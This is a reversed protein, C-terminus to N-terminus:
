ALIARQERQRRVLDYTEAVEAGLLFVCATYYLWLVGLLVAIANANSLLRDFTAVETLYLAFLQKAMEFGLSAVAAALVATDWRVPRSPLVVYVIYFLLLGIGFTSLEALFRGFWPSRAWLVTLVANASVFALAVIVLALDLLKGVLFPRTEETDFVENLAARAGSFLRTAFWLFLPAGWFSFQARSEVVSEILTELRRVSAAGGGTPLMRDLLQVLDSVSEEGAHLTFGLVALLLIAFPLAALLADFTLASALFLINDQYAGVVVRRVFGQPSFAWGRRGHPRM